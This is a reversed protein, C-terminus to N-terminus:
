RLKMTAVFVTNGFLTVNVLGRPQVAVHVKHTMILGICGIIYLDTLYEAKLFVASDFLGFERNM